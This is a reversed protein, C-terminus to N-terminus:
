QGTSNMMSALIRPSKCSLKTLRDQSLGSYEMYLQIASKWGDGGFDTVGWIEDYKDSKHKFLCASPTSENRIKFKKNKGDNGVCNSAEPYIWLIIDLGGNTADYIKQVPIM